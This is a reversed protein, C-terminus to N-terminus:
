DRRKKSLNTGNNNNNNNQPSCKGCPKVRCKQWWLKTFLRDMILDSVFWANDLGLAGTDYMNIDTNDFQEGFTLILGTTIFDCINCTPNKKKNLKRIKWTLSVLGWWKVKQSLITLGYQLLAHIGDFHWCPFLCTFHQFLANCSCTNTGITRKRLHFLIRVSFSTSLSYFTYKKNQIYLFCSDLRNCQKTSCILHAQPM